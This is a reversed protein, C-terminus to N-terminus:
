FLGLFDADDLVDTVSGLDAVSVQSSLADIESFSNQLDFPTSALTPDIIPSSFSISTSDFLGSSTSFFTNGVADMGTFGDGMFNPSISGIFEGGQTINADGFIAPTAKIDSTVGTMDLHLGGDASEMLTGSDGNAFHVTGEGMVGPSAELIIDGSRDSITINGLFDEKMHLSEFPSALPDQAYLAMILGSHLNDM